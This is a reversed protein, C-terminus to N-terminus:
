NKSPRPVIILQSSLRLEENLMRKEKDSIPPCERRIRGLTAPGLSFYDLFEKADTYRMRAIEVNRELDELVKELNGKRERMRGVWAELEERDDEGTAPLLALRAQKESKEKGLQHIRALIPADQGEQAFSPYKTRWEQLDELAKQAQAHEDDIRALSDRLEASESLEDELETLTITTKQLEDKHYQFNGNLKKFATEYATVQISISHCSQNIVSRLADDEEYTLQGQSSPTSGRSTPANSAAPSSRTVAPVAAIPEVELDGEPSSSAARQRKKPNPHLTATPTDVNIHEAVLTSIRPPQPSGSPQRQNAAVSRRTRTMTEDCNATIEIATTTTSALGLPAFTTTVRPRPTSTPSETTSLNSMVGLTPKRDKPNLPKPTPANPSRKKEEVIWIDDAAWVDSPLWRSPDSPVRPLGRQPNHSHGLKLLRKADEYESVHRKRSWSNLTCWFAQSLTNNFDELITDRPKRWRQVLTELAQLARKNPATDERLM